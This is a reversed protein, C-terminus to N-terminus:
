GDAHVRREVAQIVEEVAIDEICPTARRCRREYLCACQSARSLAIDAGPGGAMLPGNREPLTPGFLAVIPTGVAGAIHLPGTDGSIVLKAGGTIAFLDTIRTPPALVASGASAAIVSAALAEEGPGWLIVSRWGLRAEIAAAIAGFRAPPWRKNPWAAGPNIVVYDNGVLRAVAAAAAGHPVRLPFEVRREPVGAADLLALNKFVVHAADGPDIAETYFVRALPERLHPKSLGVTRRAGAGRALAASKLLGQLDFAVDYRVRRLERVTLWLRSLGARPDCPVARDVATVLALMPVYRPDVLWDIRAGPIHRRLAAAVPIGHIVDGLAGLRVILFRDNV